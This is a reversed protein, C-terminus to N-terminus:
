CSPPPLLFAMPFCPFPLAQTPPPPPPPNPTTSIKPRRPGAYFNQQPPIQKEFHNARRWEAHRWVPKNGGIQHTLTGPLLSPTPTPTPSSRACRLQSPPFFLCLFVQALESAIMPRKASNFVSDLLNLPLM